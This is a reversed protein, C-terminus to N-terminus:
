TTQKPTFSSGLLGGGIAFYVMSIKWSSTIACNGSACGIFYWYTWGALAGAVVGILTRRNTKAWKKM